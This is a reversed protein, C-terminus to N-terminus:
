LDVWRTEVPEVVSLTGSSFASLTVCVIEVEGAVRRGSRMGFATRAQLMSPRPTAAWVAPVTNTLAGVKRM